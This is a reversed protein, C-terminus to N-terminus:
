AGRKLHSQTLSEVNKLSGNLLFKKHKKGALYQKLDKSVSTFLLYHLKSEHLKAELVANGVLAAVPWM